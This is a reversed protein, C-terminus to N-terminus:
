ALVERWIGGVIEELMGRGQYERSEPRAEAPAVSESGGEREADVAVEGAACIGGPGHVGAAQRLSSKAVRGGWDREEARETGTYYAVLRKDGSRM